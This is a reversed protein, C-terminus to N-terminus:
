KSKAPIKKPPCQNPLKPFGKLFDLEKNILFCKREESFKVCSAVAKFKIGTCYGPVM